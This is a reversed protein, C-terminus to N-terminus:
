CPRCPDFRRGRTKSVLARGASSRGQAAPSITGRRRTAGNQAHLPMKEPKKEHRDRGSKEEQRDVRARWPPAAHTMAIADVARAAQIASRARRTRTRARGSSDAGARRIRKGHSSRVLGLREPLLVPLGVVLLETVAQDQGVRREDLEHRPAHPRTKRRVDVLLVEDRVPEEPEDARDLAEIRRALDLELGERHRADAARDDVLQTREVPHRAGDPRPSALDLTRDRRELFLEM